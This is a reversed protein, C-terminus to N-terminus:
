GLFGLLSLLCMLGLLGLGELSGQSGLGEFFGLFALSDLSSPRELYGFSGLGLLLILPGHTQYPWPDSLAM